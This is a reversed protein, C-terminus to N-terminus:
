GNEERHERSAKQKRRMVVAVASLVVILVALPPCGSCDGPGVVELRITSTPATEIFARKMRGEGSAKYRCEYTGSDEKKLNKLIVSLDGNKTDKDKLEVRNKFSPHQHGSDTHGDQYFFVYEEEKMDTRSWEVATIDVGDPAQCSLTVDDGPQAKLNHILALPRHFLLGLVSFNVVCIKM